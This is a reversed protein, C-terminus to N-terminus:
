PRSRAWPSSSHLYRGRGSTTSGGTGAHLILVYPSAPVSSSRLMCHACAHTRMRAHTHACTHKVLVSALAHAYRRATGTGDINKVTLKFAPKTAPVVPVIFVGYGHHSAVSAVVNPMFRFDCFYIGCFSSTSLWPPCGYPGTVASASTTAMVDREIRAGSGLCKACLGDIQSIISFDMAFSRSAAPLAWCPLTVTDGTGTLPVYDVLPVYRLRRVPTRKPLPGDTTAPRGLAVEPHSPSPSAGGPTGPGPPPARPDPPRAPTLEPHSIAAPAPALARTGPKPPPALPVVTDPTCAPTPPHQGPLPAAHPTSFRAPAKCATM